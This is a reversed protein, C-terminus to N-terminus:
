GHVYKLLWCIITLDLINLYDLIYSPIFDAMHNTYFQKDTSIQTAGPLIYFQKDTAIDSILAMEM